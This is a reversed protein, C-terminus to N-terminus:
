SKGATALYESRRRADAAYPSAPYEEVLQKYSALAEPLKKADEFSGALGALAADRPVRAEPDTSMQRFIEIAKDTEGKKRHLGALALSALDSELGSRDSKLSTLTKEAEAYMRLEIQCLAAYYSARKGEVRSGFRRAAGDFASLAAKYKAEETEFTPGAPKEEASGAAVVPASWTGMARELALAAEASRTAQFYYLAGVGAALVLVVIGGLRVQDRNTALWEMAHEFFSRVEDQKLDERTEKKLKAASRL